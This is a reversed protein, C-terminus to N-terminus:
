RYLVRRAHRRYGDPPAALALGARTMAEEIIVVEKLGLNPQKLLDVWSFWLLQELNEIGALELWRRLKSALGLDDISM